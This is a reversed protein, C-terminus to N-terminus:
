VPCDRPSLDKETAGKKSGNKLGKIKNLKKKIWAIAKSKDEVKKPGYHLTLHGRQYEPASFPTDPRAEQSLPGAPSPLAAREIWPSSSLPPTFTKFAADGTFVQAPNNETTVRPCGTELMNAEADYPMTTLPQATATPAKLKAKLRERLADKLKDQVVKSSDMKRKRRFQVAIFVVLVAIVIFGAAIGLIAGIPMSSFARSSAVPSSAIPPPVVADTQM